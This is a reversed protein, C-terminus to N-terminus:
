EIRRLKYMNPNAELIAPLYGDTRWPDSVCINRGGVVEKPQKMCWKLCEYIDEMPTGDDGRAIRENPWNKELTAKHIKTKVYGPGLAFVKVDSCEHDMQEVTKLLAMKSLNYPMYGHMIKQPNSGAMFCISANQARDKWVERLLRLPLLINSFVCEDFEDPDLDHWHGVPAVKGLAFLALNWKDSSKIYVSRSWYNLSWNDELLRAALNVGIDSNAGFIIATKM